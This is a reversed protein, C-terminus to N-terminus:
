ITEKTDVEDEALHKEEAEGIEVSHTMSLKADIKDLEEKAIDTGEMIFKAYKQITLRLQDAANTPDRLFTTCLEMIANGTYEPDM